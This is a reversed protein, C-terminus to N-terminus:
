WPLSTFGLYQIGGTPPFPNRPRMSEYLGHSNIAVSSGEAIPGAAASVVYVLSGIRIQDPPIDPDRVIPIGMVATINTSDPATAVMPVSDIARQMYDWAAGTGVRVRDPDEGFAHRLDARAESVIEIVRRMDTAAGEPAAGYVDNKIRETRLPVADAALNVGGALPVRVITQSMSPHYTGNRYMPLREWAQMSGGSREVWESWGDQIDSDGPHDTRGAIEEAVERSVAAGIITSGERDWENSVVYINM